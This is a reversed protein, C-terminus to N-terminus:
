AIPLSSAGFQHALIHQARLLFVRPVVCEVVETPIPFSETHGIVGGGRLVGHYYYTVLVPHGIVGGGHYYYATHGIVGRGRLVGHYYYWLHQITVV